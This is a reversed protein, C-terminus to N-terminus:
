PTWTIGFCDKFIKANFADALSQNTRDDGLFGTLHGLEHLLVFARFDTDSLSTGFSAAQAAATNNLFNGIINITVTQDGVNTSAFVNTRPTASGPPFYFGM